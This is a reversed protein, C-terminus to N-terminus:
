NLSGHITLGKDNLSFATRCDICAFHDQIIPGYFQMTHGVIQYTDPLPKSSALENVDAWVVSGSLYDGGRLLGAQALTKIGEDSKILQNLHEGDPEKIIDINQQLWPQTVGAHSFLYRRGGITEEHALQFYSTSSRYLHNLEDELIWDHRDSCALDHYLNSFYSMDHNGLLLVVNEPNKTKLSLIDKFNSLASLNDIGEWQYPDVYDGLFIIKTYKVTNVAKKWFTRGHVDPIILINKEM